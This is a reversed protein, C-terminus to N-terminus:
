AKYNQRRDWHVTSDNGMGGVGGITMIAAEEFGSVYYSSAAHALHHETFLTDGEYGLNERLVDKIFLREHLMQSLQGRMMNDSDGAWRAACSFM